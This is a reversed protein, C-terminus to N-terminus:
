PVSARSAEARDAARRALEAPSLSPAKKGRGRSRKPAPQVPRVPSSNTGPMSPATVAARRRARLARVDGVWQGVLHPYWRRAPRDGSSVDVWAPPVYGEADAIYDRLTRESIGLFTRVEADTMLRPPKPNQLAHLVQRLLAVAEDLPNM